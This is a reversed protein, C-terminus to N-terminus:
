EDQLQVRAYGSFKIDQKNKIWDRTRVGLKPIIHPHTSIFFVHYHNKERSWFDQHDDLWALFVFFLGTFPHDNEFIDTIGGHPINESSVLERLKVSFPKPVDPWNLYVYKNTSEDFKEWGWGNMPTIHFTRGIFNECDKTLPM